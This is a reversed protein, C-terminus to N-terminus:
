SFPVGIRNRTAEGRPFAPYIDFHDIVELVEQNLISLCLVWMKHILGACLFRVPRDLPDNSSLTPLCRGRGTRESAHHPELLREVPGNRGPV